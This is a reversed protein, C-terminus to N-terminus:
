LQLHAQEKHAFTHRTGDSRKLKKQAEKTANIFNILDFVGWFIAM